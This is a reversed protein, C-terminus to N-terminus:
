SQKNLYQEYQEKTAPLYEQLFVVHNNLFYNMKYVTESLTDKVYEPMDSDEREEYWALEKFLHPYQSISHKFGDEDNGDWSWDRDLIEGIKYDSQPYDAIVKFRREMLDISM